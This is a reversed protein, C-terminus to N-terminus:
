VLLEVLWKRYELSVKDVGRIHLEASLDIPLEEPKQSETVVRDQEAIELQFQIYKEEDADFDYNRAMFTFTRCLRPGIPSVAIYVVWRMDGPMVQHFWVTLPMFLRWQNQSYVPGETLARDLKENPPEILTAEWRLEGGDRRVEHEPVEPHNRDGISGDHVWAIHAFDIFNEMRRAAGCRWDYTPVTVIKFRDDGFEPLTPVPFVPEELSVWVLGHDETVHYPQLRARAPINPGHRAPIATCVGDDGYTWGHYACRLQDGEVWGLSLPTGRHACLDRFARIEGGLRVLVIEEGLLVVPEPKSGLDASYMVPHWFRRLAQYLRGEGTADLPNESMTEEMGIRRRSIGTV